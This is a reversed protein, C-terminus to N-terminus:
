ILVEPRLCYRHRNIVNRKTAKPKLTTDCLRLKSKVIRLCAIGCNGGLAEINSQGSKSLEESVFKIKLKM